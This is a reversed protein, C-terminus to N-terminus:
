AVQIVRSKRSARELAPLFYDKVVVEWSMRRALDYGRKRMEERAEDTRPLRRLIEDAVTRAVEHEIRDRQDRDMRLLEDIDPEIGGLNTYDAVIVNDCGRGATVAEVFGACGCVNTIVCLAGFSLPELQAIGFPEYISQGFEVHTGRRIDMFEMDEPMRLGCANRDWGFQNVFVVKVNRARANFEQIGAYTMAEGGSMDPMGERHAVPWHWWKEMNRVDEPRRPPVETSLLFLVATEGTQRFRQEIHELVRLDRWIGKSVATRTVHTFIYDPQIGLLNDAYRRLRARSEAVEQGSVDYAPLGNYCLDIDVHRFSADLFQLEKLVYDGVALINDCYKSASVLAHKFYHSQDGFVDELYLGQRRALALVNYFMTDHGPHDEVIKRIPAVEHAYFVTRYHHATDLIAALATPMGMFEHAVIVCENHPGTAGLATLCALAPPALKVYQDYEWYREYALSDIGFAEWMRAKFANIPKLDSRSVDILVVEPSYAIGTKRDSFTRRGYVIDVGFRKQVEGLPHAAPHRVIGDVSSYLVEGQPGLRYEPAGETTFLPGILVTRDVSDIYTRSTFLGQLVAGIGGVKQVAEHTVHALTRM